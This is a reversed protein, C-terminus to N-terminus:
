KYVVDQLVISEFGNGLLVKYEIFTTDLGYGRYYIYEVVARASDPKLYIIDGAKYKVNRKYIEKKTEERQKTEDTCGM